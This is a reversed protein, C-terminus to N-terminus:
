GGNKGFRAIWKLIIHAKSEIEVLTVDSKRLEEFQAGLLLVNRFRNINSIISTEDIQVMVRKPNAYQPNVIGFKKSAVAGTSPPATGVGPPAQVANAVPAVPAAPSMPEDFFGASVVESDSRDLADIKPKEDNEQM